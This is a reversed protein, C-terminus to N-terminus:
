RMAWLVCLWLLAVLVAGGGVRAAASMRLLSAEAAGAPAASAQAHRYFHPHDHM